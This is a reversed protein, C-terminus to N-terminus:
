LTQTLHFLPLQVDSLESPPSLNSWSITPEWGQNSRMYPLDNNSSSAGGFPIHIYNMTNWGYNRLHPGVFRICVRLLLIHAGLSTTYIHSLNVLSCTNTVYRPQTKDARAFIINFSFMCPPVSVVHCQWLAAVLSSSLSPPPCVYKTRPCLSMTWVSLRPDGEFWYRLTPVFPKPIEMNTIMWSKIVFKVFKTDEIWYQRINYITIEGYMTYWIAKNISYRRKIKRTM